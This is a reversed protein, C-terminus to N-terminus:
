RSQVSFDELPNIVYSKEDGLLNSVKIQLNITGAAPLSVTFYGQPDIAQTVGNVLVSNLPEVKGI